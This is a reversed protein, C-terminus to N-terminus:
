EGLVRGMLKLTDKFNFKLEKKLYNLTILITISLGLFTSFLAGYFAHLNLYNFLHMLPIDLALNILEQRYKDINM